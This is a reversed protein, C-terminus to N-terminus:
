GNREVIIPISFRYFVWAFVLFIFTFIMLVTFYLNYSSELGTMYERATVILCSTPNWEVIKALFGQNKSASYVVPSLYMLFQMGMPILRGVDNYLMGLPTLILGACFGFFILGLIVLPIFIIRFDPTIGFIIIVAFMLCLKILSNGGIKYLGSLLLAEKPFNIKGIIGKSGMTQKLPIMVSESLISWLLTGTLVYAPYPIGSDSIKVAGSANLFIWVLASMLPTIFAWFAGLLSQRYQGKFDRVTLRWALDRSQKLDSFMESLLDKLRVGSNDSKYVRIQM